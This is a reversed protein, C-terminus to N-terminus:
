ATRKGVNTFIFRVFSGRKLLLRWYHGDPQRNSHYLIREPSLEVFASLISSFQFFNLTASSSSDNYIYIYHVLNPHTFRLASSGTTISRQGYHRTCCSSADNDDDLATIWPQQTTNRSLNVQVAMYGFWLAVITAVVILPLPSRAMKEITLM